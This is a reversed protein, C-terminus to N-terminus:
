TEWFFEILVHPLAKRGQNIEGYLGAESQRLENSGGLPIGAVRVRQSWTFDATFKPAPTAERSGSWINSMNLPHPSLAGAFELSAPWDADALKRTCGKGSACM